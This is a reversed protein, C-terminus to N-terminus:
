LRWMASASKERSYGRPTYTSPQEPWTRVM